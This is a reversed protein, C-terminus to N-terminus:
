DPDRVQVPYATALRATAPRPRGRVLRGLRDLHPLVALLVALTYV